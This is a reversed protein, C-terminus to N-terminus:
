GSVNICNNCVGVGGTKTNDARLSVTFVGPIMYTHNPSKENSTEGDGFQWFFSTPDGASFETFEVAMPVNGETENATFIVNVQGPTYKGATSIAHDKTINIFSYSETPLTSINDVKVDVLDSGPKGHTLYTDNSGQAYTNVGNPYIITHNDATADIVYQGESRNFTASIQHDAIIDSFRYSGPSGKNEDDVVVSETKYGSDPTIVFTQNGGCPVSVNGSPSISGGSGSTANINYKMKTFESRISQNATVNFFKYQYISFNTVPTVNGNVYVSGIEYCSDPTITFTQNQGNSVSVLGSPAISGGPGATSNIYWVQVSKSFSANITQNRTVNLFTYSSVSGISVSNVQVDSINYGTDPTITFTENEGCPVSIVGSPSINGDTGATATIINSKKYFEAQISQNATVNSFTYRYISLNTVPTANGNVYVSGIEYCSDATVTFTQNQGNSVSVLGSPAISGGPGATSNIYWVQVSKSFSANITQNLTVNNFTYRSVSGVSVNNVQVDSINYGIDPTIVFTQNVGCPVTVNGSPSVSGGSGATATIIYSKQIFESRISQNASVNSFSYQYVSLNTVPTVNGNVYLSGIEHCSDATVTFTQNQGNSVSVLGSPAISGGSGTTSNINWLQGSKSFSANIIQNSTVNYFTYRSVSGVSVSNVQVDSLIYGSNPNISFTQNGGSVVSVNGSPSITGGSGATALLNYMVTANGGRPTLIGGNTLSYVKKGLYSNDSLNADYTVTFGNGIINSIYTESIADADILSTLNSNGTVNWTSTATLALASTNIAGILASGNKLTTRISSIDDSSLSGALYVSDATFNVIGGNKGTTGWRSTGAAKILTDSSVSVDVDSLSISANTNTVFFAPGDKSTYSGGKMVYVGTGVNADGSTSQYIMIGGTNAVGGTLKSNTLNVSNSGEIVCAETGSSTITADRVSIVGTSYIGPSDTGSSQIVGRTVNVNGGGRDTAIPAGNKGTTSIDVDTLSMSAGLTAMVGHGGDGSASITVNSLTISTGNGTPIAANAGTGTTTISGGIMMVNSGNNALLGGNLGYFSSADQSSTNGTTFLTTNNLTLNGYNTVYIASVNTTNSIYTKDSLLVTKGDVTYVGSIVYASAISCGSFFIVLLIFFFSKLIKNKGAM